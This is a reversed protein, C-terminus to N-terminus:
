PHALDLVVINWDDTADSFSHIVKFGVREHARMSRTNKQSVETVCLRFRSALEIQHQRYLGDFVGQGRYAEAVCIQGMVYYPIQTFPTGEYILSDLMDFMPELVPILKRFSQPMVLAYGALQEGDKAIIQPSAENMQKLLPLNHQVTVFGQAQIQEPSLNRPLNVAQLDLIQQLEHDTRATTFRLSM